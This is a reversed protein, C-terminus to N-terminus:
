CNVYTKTEYLVNNVNEAVLYTNKNMGHFKKWRIKEMNM